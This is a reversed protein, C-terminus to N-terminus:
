LQCYLRNLKGLCLKIIRGLAHVFIGKLFLEVCKFHIEDTTLLQKTSVDQFQTRSLPCHDAIAPHTCSEVRRNSWFVSGYFETNLNSSFAHQFFSFNSTLDRIHYLLIFVTSGRLQQAKSSKRRKQKSLAQLYQWILMVTEWPWLHCLSCQTHKHAHRCKSVIHTHVSSFVSTETISVAVASSLLRKSPM